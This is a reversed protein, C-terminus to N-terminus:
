QPCAGGAVTRSLLTLGDTWVTVYRVEGPDLRWRRVNRDLGGLQIRGTREDTYRHGDWQATTWRLQGYGGHVVVRTVTQGTPLCTTRGLRITMGDGPEAGDADDTMVGVVVLATLVVLAWVIMVVWMSRSNM